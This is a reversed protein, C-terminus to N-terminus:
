NGGRRARVRKLVLGAVCGVLFGCGGGLASYGMYAGADYFDWEGSWMHWGAYGLVLGVCFGVFLAWSKRSVANSM